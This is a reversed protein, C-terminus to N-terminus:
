NLSSRCCDLNKNFCKLNTVKPYDVNKYTAITWPPPFHTSESLYFYPNPTECLNSSIGVCDYSKSPDIKSKERKYLGKGKDSDQKEFVEALVRKQITENVKDDCSGRFTGTKPMYEKFKDNINGLFQLYKQKNPDLGSVVLKSVIEDNLTKKGTYKLDYGDDNYDLTFKPDNTNVFKEVTLKIPQAFLFLYLLIIVLLVYM